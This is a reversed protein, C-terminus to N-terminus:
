VLALKRKARRERERERHCVNCKRWGRVAYSPPPQQGAFLHGNVCEKAAACRAAPGTGRLINTRETVAELHNPNVCSRNRCLHDLVLGKPVPGKVIEYSLRHANVSVQNAKGGGIYVSGYGLPRRTPWIWCGDVIKVRNLIDQTTKYNYSM